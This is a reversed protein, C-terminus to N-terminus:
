TTSKELKRERITNKYIIYFIFIVKKLFQSVEKEARGFM